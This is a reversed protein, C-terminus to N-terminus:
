FAGDREWRGDRRSVYVRGECVVTTGGPYGVDNWHCTVLRPNSPFGRPLEGEDLPGDAIVTNQKAPDQPEVRITETAM